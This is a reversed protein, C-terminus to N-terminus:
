PPAPESVAIFATDRTWFTSRREDWVAIEYCPTASSGPEAKPTQCMFGHMGYVLARNVGTPKPVAMARPRFAAQRQFMQDGVVIYFGCGGTGCWPYGIGECEFELYVVTAAHDEAGLPLEYIAGQPVRLRGSSAAQQSSLEACALEYDSLIAQVAAETKSDRPNAVASSAVLLSLASARLLYQISRYSVLCLERRGIIRYPHSLARLIM